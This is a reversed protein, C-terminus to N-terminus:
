DLPGSNADKEGEATRRVLAALEDWFGTEYKKAVDITPRANTESVVTREDTELLDVGVLPIALRRAAREVLSRQRNNLTVSTATAGRHVNHKWQGSERAAPPLSREVAGVYQGDLVMARYDAADAFYEQVVFSRDGTAPFEHILDLYDCIGLFTDLDGARAVGTGRTTSNPKIVVPPDFRNYVDVLEDESVPNSVLVTTPTPVGARDLRAIAEAKNRSRLLAERGNVWPVEVLADIVGGEMLRPPFVFGVDIEAPPEDLPIPRESADIAVTQIDREALPAVMREHTEAATAVGLRLM